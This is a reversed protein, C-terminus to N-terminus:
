QLMTSSFVSWFHNAWEATNESNLPMAGWSLDRFFENPYHELAADSDGKGISRHNRPSVSDGAPICRGQLLWVMKIPRYLSDCGSLNIYYKQLCEEMACIIANQPKRRAFLREMDRFKADLVAYATHGNQEVKILLDPSCGKGPTVTDTRVLTLGHMPRAGQAVSPIWPDFYLTVATQEKQLFVINSFPPKIRNGRYGTRVSPKAKKFGKTSFLNLLEQWCFYEYITDALRGKFIAGDGWDLANGGRFWEYMHQYIDRYPAIEQFRKTQKPLSLVKPIRREELRLSRQYQKRLDEIVSLSESTHRTEPFLIMRLIHFGQDRSNAHETWQTTQLQRCVTDLFGIIMLNEYIHHDRSAIETLTERPIYNKNGVQIGGAHNEPLAHMSGTRVSWIMSDRSLARVRHFPVPVTSKQITYEPKARFYPANRRYAEIIGNLSSLSGAADSRSSLGSLMSYCENRPYRSDEEVTRSPWRLLSLVPERISMIRRIMQEINDNDASNLASCCNSVLSLTHGDANIIQAEFRVLGYQMLFPQSQLLNLDIPAGNASLSCLTCRHGDSQYVAWDSYWEREFLSSDPDTDVAPSPENTLDATPYLVTQFIKQSGFRASLRYESM